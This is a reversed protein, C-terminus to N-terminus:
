PLVEFAEGHQPRMVSFDRRDLTLIRMINVREAIAAITADVLDLRAEPYSEIIAAARDYDTPIANIWEMPSARLARIAQPVMHSGLNRRVLFVIEPLTVMSLYVYQGPLQLVNLVAEHHDDDADLYAYAFGSDALAEIRM